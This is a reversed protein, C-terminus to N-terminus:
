KDDPSEKVRRLEDELRLRSRQLRVIPVILNFDDIQRNLKSLREEFRAVAAQWRSGDILNELQQQWASRLQSRAEQLEKRITKDREIWEPAFGNRKLLGYAWELGPELFANKKLDLPKGKGPLNDFEGNEIAEQIIREVYVRREKEGIPGKKSPHKQLPTQHTELNDQVGELKKRQPYKKRKSHNM